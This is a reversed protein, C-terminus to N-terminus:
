CAPLSVRQFVEEAMDVRDWNIALALASSLQHFARAHLQSAEGARRPLESAEGLNSYEVTPRRSIARNTPLSEFSATKSSHSTTTNTGCFIMRTIIARLILDNLGNLHRDNHAASVNPDAGTSSTSQFFFLLTNGAAVHLDKIRKFAMVMHAQDAPKPSMLSTAAEAGDPRHMLLYLARAVGGSDVVCIIPTGQSMAKLTLDVTGPGGQLLLQVVPCRARLALKQEIKARVQLAHLLLCTLAPPQAHTCAHSYSSMLVFPPM